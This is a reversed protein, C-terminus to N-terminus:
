MSLKLGPAFPLNGHSLKNLHSFVISVCARAGKEARASFIIRICPNKLGNPRSILPLAFFVSYPTPLSPVGGGREKKREKEKVKQKTM